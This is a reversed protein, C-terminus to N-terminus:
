KNKLTMYLSKLNKIHNEINFKERVYYAGEKAKIQFSDKQEIFMLFIRMLDSEDKTKYINAYKGNQTTEKMVEWDNVFVPIGVAMAEIVAIGFTDHNTSYIFADLENLIQPVDNRIGLFSVVEMLDNEECYRVCDNYLELSSEIKKGVFVFHFDVKQEHLLKIFRCITMQDRGENFNGIVGLLLTKTSLKLKTRLKTKGNSITHSLTMSDTVLTSTLGVDLKEFSIGNYVVKQKEAKLRYKEQYYIRQTDSVYINLDTRKIIFGLIRSGIKNETFDYGHFTILVKIGTGLCALWAYLGDIPQQTHAVHTKNAKLLKRLSILYFFPNRGVPLKHMVVGSEIFEKELVGTKRYVGIADLENFKANRFVDLLLTETGGRNLSGLLYAIKM